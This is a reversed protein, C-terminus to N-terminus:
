RDTARIHSRPNAPDSSARVHSPPLLVRRERLPPNGSTPSVNAPSRRSSHPHFSSNAPPPSSSRRRADSKYSCPPSPQPPGAPVGSHISAHSTPLSPRANCSTLTSLRAPLASPPPPPSAPLQPSASWVPPDM